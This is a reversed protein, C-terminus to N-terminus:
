FIFLFIRCAGRNTRNVSTLDWILQLVKAFFFIMHLKFDGNGSHIPQLSSGINKNGSEPARAAGGLLTGKLVWFEQNMISCEPWNLARRKGWGCWAQSNFIWSLHPWTKQSRFIGNIFKNPVLSYVSQLPDISVGVWFMRDYTSLNVPSQSKQLRILLPILQRSERERGKYGDSM